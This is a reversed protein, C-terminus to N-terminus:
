VHARGIEGTPAGTEDLGKEAIWNLFGEFSWGEAVPIAWSAGFM